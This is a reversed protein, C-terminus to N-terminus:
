GQERAQRSNEQLGPRVGLGMSADIVAGHLPSSYSSSLFLILNAIEAPEIMRGKPLRAAYSIQEEETLKALTSAHFMPTATAGPCLAFVDVPASVLEAAMQRTMYAVAAKSMGDAIRFGPFVQIGGGVSSMNIIKLAHDGMAPKAIKLFHQCVKLAGDANIQLMCSDQEDPVEAYVQVTASGVAANNVLVDLRKWVNLAEDLSARISAASRLDLPHASIRDPALAVLEQAKAVPEIGEAYTFAVKAGHAAFAETTARGIGGLGGTLFVTKGHLSKALDM